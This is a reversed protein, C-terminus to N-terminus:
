NKPPLRSPESGQTVMDVLQQCSTGSPHCGDLPTMQGRRGLEALAEPNNALPCAGSDACSTCGGPRKVSRILARLAWVAAGVVAAGVAIMEWSGGM